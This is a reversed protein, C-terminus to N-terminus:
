HRCVSTGDYRGRTMMRGPLGAGSLAQCLDLSEIQMENDPRHPTPLAALCSRTWYVNDQIDCLSQRIIILHVTRYQITIYKNTTLRLSPWVWSVVSACSVELQQYNWNRILGLMQGDIRMEKYNVFSRVISWTKFCVFESM